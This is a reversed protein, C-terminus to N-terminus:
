VARAEGEPGRGAASGPGASWRAAHERLLALTRDPEEVWFLHGVGEFIELRAGPIREAITRGNSVPLMQDETGHIVLTPAAVQGLRSATDHGGIAQLQGMIVPV